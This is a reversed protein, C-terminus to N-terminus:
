IGVLTALTAVWPAMGFHCASAQAVVGAEGCSITDIRGFLQLVAGFVSSMLRLPPLPMLAVVTCVADAGVAGGCQSWM